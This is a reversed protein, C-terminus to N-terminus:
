DDKSPCGAAAVCEAPEKTCTGCPLAANHTAFLVGAEMVPSCVSPKELQLMRTHALELTWLQSSVRQYESKVTQPSM